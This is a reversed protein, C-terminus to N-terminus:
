IIKVVKNNARISKIRLKLALVDVIIRPAISGAGLATKRSCLQRRPFKENLNFKHLMVPEHM